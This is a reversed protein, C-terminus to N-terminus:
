RAGKARLMPPAFLGWGSTYDYHWLPLNIDHGQVTVNGSGDVLFDAVALWSAPDNGDADATTFTTSYPGYTTGGAQISVSVSASPDSWLDYSNVSVVYYGAPLSDAFIHEPGYGTTDDIDLYIECNGDLDSDIGSYGNLCSDYGHYDVYSTLPTAALPSQTNYYNLHLDMDSTDGGSWTLTITMAAGTGGGSTTNNPDLTEMDCLGYLEELGGQYNVPPNGSVTVTISGDNNFDMTVTGNIVVQGAVTYGAAYDFRVPTNTTFVFTGEFCSDPTFNIAVTGTISTEDYTSYFVVQINYNTYAVHVADTGWAEDIAGNVTFTMTETNNTANSSFTLTEAFNTYTLDYTLGSLYDQVSMTGNASTTFSASTQSATGSVSLTINAAMSFVLVGNDDFEYISFDTLTISAGNGSGTMIYTGNFTSTGETCGNFSFTVNIDGTQDDITGDYSFSGGGTCAGSGTVPQAVRSLVAARAATAATRVAGSRSFQAALKSSIALGSHQEMGKSLKIQPAASGTASLGLGSLNGFTDGSGTALAQSQGGASAAEQGQSNNAIATGGGGGSSSGGGGGGCGTLVLAFSM